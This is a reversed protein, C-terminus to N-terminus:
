SPEKKNLSNLSSHCTNVSNKSPSVLCKLQKHCLFMLNRAPITWHKPRIKLFNEFSTTLVNSVNNLYHETQEQTTNFTEAAAELQAILEKSVGAERKATEILTHISDISNTLESRTKDYAAVSLQVTKSAEEMSKATTSLIGSVQNAKEFVEVMGQGAKSFDSSSIYLTDAANNLKDVSEITINRIAHISEQMAQIVATTQAMLETIQGGLDDVAIQARGAITEQQRIFEEGARSQQASLNDIVHGVKQNLTEISAHVKESTETQSKSILEGIQEVFQRMQTNMEKQRQEAQEMVRLLQSNMAEGAKQGANALTDALDAFRDRTDRMSISTEQMLGTLHGIQAGFVEDLKTMFGAIIDALTKQVAEGQNQNAHQVIHTLAEMPKQLSNSISDSIGKAMAQHSVQTEQIQREILNSMMEKLDGVLSDKLQITQTTTEESAKVLKALYEEGVGSIYMSDITQCLSDVQKSRNTIILKEIFTVVMALGIAVASIYFAHSVSKILIGLFKPAKTPDLIPNYAELGTILGYFTGIIGLGTFIGPLHKFFDTRLPIDILTETNFFAEARVTSRYGNVIEKEGVISKQPHLTESYEEWLHKYLRDQM